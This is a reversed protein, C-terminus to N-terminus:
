ATSSEFLPSLVDLLIGSERGKEQLSLRLEITGKAIPVETLSEVQKSCCRWTKPDISVVFHAAVLGQPFREVITNLANNEGVFHRNQVSLKDGFHQIPSRTPGPTHAVIAVNGDIAINRGGRHALEDSQALHQIRLLQAAEHADLEAHINVAATAVHERLRTEPSPRSLCHCRLQWDHGVVGMDRLDSASELRESVRVAADQQRAKCSSTASRQQYM